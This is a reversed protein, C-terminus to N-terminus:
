AFPMREVKDARGNLIAALLNTWEIVEVFQQNAAIATEIEIFTVKINDWTARTQPGCDVGAALLVGEIFLADRKAEQIESPANVLATLMSADPELDGALVWKDVLRNWPARIKDKIEPQGAICEQIQVSLTPFEAHGKVANGITAPKLACGAVFLGIFVLMSVKYFNPKMRM